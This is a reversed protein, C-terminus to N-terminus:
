LRLATRRWLRQRRGLGRGGAARCDAAAAFRRTGDEAFGDLVRATSSLLTGNKM